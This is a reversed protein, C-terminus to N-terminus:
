KRVVPGAQCFFSVRIIADTSTNTSSMAVSAIVGTRAYIMQDDGDARTGARRFCFRHMRAPVGAATSCGAPLRGTGRQRRRDQLLAGSERNTVLVKAGHRGLARRARLSPPPAASMGTGGAATVGNQCSSLAAEASLPVQIGRPSAPPCGQSRRLWIVIFSV